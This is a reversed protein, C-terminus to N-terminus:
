EGDRVVVYISARLNEYTTSAATVEFIGPTNPATYKGNPEITGGNEERINWTVPTPSIGRFEPELFFSERTKLYLIDPRILLATEEVDHVKEKADRLATWNVRVYRNMTPEVLRLGIRFTGTKADAKAALEARFPVEDPFIEPSGYIVSDEDRVGTCAGLIITVNGLGLEHSIDESFFRQGTNGGLGLDFIVHGTTMTPGQNRRDEAKEGHVEDSVTQKGTGQVNENRVLKGMIDALVNNYVFQQFPMPEMSDILYSEGARIVYIRALYISQQYNNRLIDEMASRYYNRRVEDSVRGEILKVTQKGAAAAETERGGFSLRFSGKVIDMVGEANKASGAKVQYVIEYRDEKEHKEEDFMITMRKAGSSELCTLGLDYSFRIPQGQGMNEVTIRLEFTSGCVAYAPCTQTIKVGKGMYIMSTNEYFAADSLVMQSPERETVTLEYGEQYRNYEVGSEGTVNHVPERETEKYDMCLYLYKKEDRSRNFSDFGDIMSLKKVVPTDVVIERGSFDLALGPEVSITMDDIPVVNLGCVVGSGYLFRNLMRRKDNMYRQETEFDDVTLLKGYFYKNREFPFYKMNKM